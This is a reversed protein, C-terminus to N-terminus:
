TFIVGDTGNPFGFCNKETMWTMGYNNYYYIFHRQRSTWWIVSLGDAANVEGIVYRQHGRQNFSSRLPM